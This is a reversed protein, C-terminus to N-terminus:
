ARGHLALFARSDEALRRARSTFDLHANAAVPAEISIHRDAPLWRLLDALPLEGKGPALRGTRAETARDEPLPQALPADCLQMYSLEFPALGGLDNPSGGSRSLHLADLIMGANPQGAEALIARAASFSNVPVWSIFELGVTIGRPAALQCLRVFNELRRAPEPDLGTCLVNTCGLAATCDLVSEFRAMDTDPILPFGEVDAVAVGSDAVQDRFERFSPPDAVLDIGGPLRMSSNLRLGIGDFGGDRAAALLELPRADIMSLHALSLLTM